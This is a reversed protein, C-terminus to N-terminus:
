AAALGKNENVFASLRTFFHEKEAMMARVDAFVNRVSQYSTLCKRSLDEDSLVEEWTAKSRLLKMLDPGRSKSSSAQARAIM